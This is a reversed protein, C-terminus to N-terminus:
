YDGEVFHVDDGESFALQERMEVKGGYDVMAELHSAVSVLM